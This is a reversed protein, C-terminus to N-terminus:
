QKAFRDIESWDISGDQRVNIHCVQTVNHTTKLVHVDQSTWRSPSAIAALGLVGTKAIRFSKAEGIDPGSEVTFGREQLGAEIRCMVGDDIESM